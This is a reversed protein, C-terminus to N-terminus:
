EVLPSENEQPHFHVIMLCCQISFFELSILIDGSLPSPALEVTLVPKRGPV